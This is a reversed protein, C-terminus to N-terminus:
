IKGFFDGPRFRFVENEKDGNNITVKCCGETLIYFTNGITGQRCIYSNPQFTIPVMADLLKKKNNANLNKFLSVNELVDKGILRRNEAMIKNTNQLLEEFKKKTMVLCKATPSIVTVTASRTEATM